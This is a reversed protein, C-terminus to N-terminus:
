PENFQPTCVEARRQHLSSIHEEDNAEEERAPIQQLRAMVDEQNGKVM